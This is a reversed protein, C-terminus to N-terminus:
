SKGLYLTTSKYKNKLYSSLMKSKREKYDREIREILLITGDELKIKDKVMYNRITETEITTNINEKERLNINDIDVILKEVQKYDLFEWKDNDVNYWYGKLPYDARNRGIKQLLAM